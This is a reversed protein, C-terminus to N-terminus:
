YFPSLGEEHCCEVMCQVVLAEFTSNVPSCLKAEAAM